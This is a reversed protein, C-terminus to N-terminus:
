TFADLEVQSIYGWRRQLNDAGFVSQGNWFNSLVVELCIYEIHQNLLDQLYDREGITFFHFTKNSFLNLAWESLFFPFFTFSDWAFFLKM